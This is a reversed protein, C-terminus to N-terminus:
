QTIDRSGSEGNLYNSLTAIYFTAGVNQLFYFLDSYKYYIFVFFYLLYLLFNQNLM